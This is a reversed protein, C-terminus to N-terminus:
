GEVCAAHWPSVLARAAEGTGFLVLLYTGLLEGALAQPSSFPASM